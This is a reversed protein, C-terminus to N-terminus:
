KGPKAAFEVLSKLLDYPVGSVNSIKRGNIFLTPTSTVDVSAGLAISHQVRGATEATAACKAIDSGKVGAQDAMATLKQDANEPTIDAQADYASHIFKWFAENSTKGVCDAYDAGKAAWNHSPLPFNQFVLRASKEESLLKDITPQAQKCYPCQLDSFEVVTVPADAPGLSPGTIGKQLTERDADFPHTGFPIIEGVVAHRGDATVYLKQNQKGQPNSVTVTIEALGEAEAPKIELVKWSVSPDHGFMQQMFANVTEETPLRASFTPETPAAKQTKDPPAKQQAALLSALLLVILSCSLLRHM